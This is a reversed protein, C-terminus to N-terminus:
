KNIIGNANVNSRLPYWRFLTQKPLYSFKIKWIESAQVISTERRSRRWEREKKTKMMRCLLLIYIVRDKWVYLKWKSSVSSRAAIGFDYIDMSIALFFEEVKRITEAHFAATPLHSRSCMILTKVRGRNPYQAYWWVKNLIGCWEFYIHKHIAWHTFTKLIISRFLSCFLLYRKKQIKRCENIKCWCLVTTINKKKSVIKFVSFFFIM